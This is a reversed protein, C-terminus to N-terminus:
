KYAEVALAEAEEATFEAIVHYSHDRIEAVTAPWLLMHGVSDLAEGGYKLPGVMTDFTETELVAIIKDVDDVTGAKKVAETLVQMITAAYYAGMTFEARYQDRFDAAFDRVAQPLGEGMPNPQYVLFGQVNEWEAFNGFWKSWGIFATLGDWGMEKMPKLTQVSGIVLDPNMSVLKTALPYFEATDPPYYDVTVVQYGFYEAAPIAADAVAHGIDDDTMAIAVTRVEPHATTLWNFFTPTHVVYNPSTHFTHPNDPGLLEVGGGAIDLLVGSEECIAQAAAGADSGAQHMIKVGDDFILKTATAVGGAGTWQNNEIIPKWRYSEGAVTFEGIKEAALELGLKAPFGVINGMLGSLPLGFGIKVEEVAPKGKGGCAASFALALCLVVVAAVVLWKKM